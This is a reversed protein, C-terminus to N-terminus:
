AERDVRTCSASRGEDAVVPRPSTLVGTTAQGTVAADRQHRLQEALMSIEARLEHVACSASATDAQEEEAVRQVIWSALSGTVVGLLSIGGIMLSVAILRGPVTVPYLDGYGVSTVTTISWWLANGFSNITAGPQGREQAYVGLSAVYILLGVGTVTYVVIRGRVAHGLSKQLAGFLILARLLRLPGLLPLALIMLDFLHRLVWRPRDAALALRVAYDAVFLGWTLWTAVVILRPEAGHPRVLVHFTYAALYAIAVVALLWSSRREWAEDKARGAAYGTGM